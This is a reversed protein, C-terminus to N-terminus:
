IKSLYAEQYRSVNSTTLELNAKAGYPKTVVLMEEMVLHNHNPMQEVTLATSDVAIDSGWGTKDAEDVNIYGM